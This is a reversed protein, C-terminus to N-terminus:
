PVRVGAGPGTDLSEKIGREPGPVPALAPSTDGNTTEVTTETGTVTGTVIGTANVIETESETERETEAGAGNRRKPGIGLLAVSTQKSFSVLGGEDKCGQADLM